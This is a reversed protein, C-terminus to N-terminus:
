LKNKIRVVVALAVSIVIAITSVIILSQEPFAAVTDVITRNLFDVFQSLLLTFLSAFLAFITATMSLFNGKGEVNRIITDVDNTKKDGELGNILTRELEELNVCYKLKNEYALFNSDMIEKILDFLISSLTDMDGSKVNRQKATSAHLAKLVYVSPLPNEPISFKLTDFVEKNALNVSLRYQRRSRFVEWAKTIGYVLLGTIISIVWNNSLFDRMYDGKKVM